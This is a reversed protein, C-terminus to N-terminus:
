RGSSGSRTSSRSSSRRTGCRTTRDPRDSHGYGLFDFAVVRHLALHPLLPDHARSDDPFGHLLVVLTRGRPQDVVHLSGGAVPV